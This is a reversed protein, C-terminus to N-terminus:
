RWSEKRGLYKKVQREIEEKVINVATHLNESVEEARLFKGPLPLNIEARYIEGKRHRRSTRGVEIKADEWTKQDIFKKLSGVENRIHEMLQPTLELNHGYIQM